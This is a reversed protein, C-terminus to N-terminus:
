CDCEKVLNMWLNHEAVHRMMCLDFTNLFILHLSTQKMKENNSNVGIECQEQTHSNIDM